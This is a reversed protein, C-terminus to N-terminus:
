SGSELRNTLSFPLHVTEIESGTEPAMLRTGPSNYGRRVFGLGLRGGTPSNTASTVWGVEKLDTQGGFLKTGAELRDGTLGCLRKNTQGSMKMRSIVEQGIYCGKDYDITTSELNAEIPIIQDTLEHGWAPIGREIRLREARKEDCFEFQESLRQQLEERQRVRVWIDCGEEGFRWASRVQHQDDMTFSPRGLSHFLAFRDTIDDIQVDDAIIYRELRPLLSERLLTDADILFASQERTCFVHANLKGKNTLVCAAIATQDTAKRIDNTIQGNLFRESDAGSVQLKIRSSLDFFLAM